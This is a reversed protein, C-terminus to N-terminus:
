PLLDATDVIQLRSLAYRGNPLYKLAASEFMIYIRGDREVVSEM